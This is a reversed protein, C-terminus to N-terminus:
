EVGECGGLLGQVGIRAPVALYGCELDGTGFAEKGAVEFPYGALRVNLVASGDLEFYPHRRKLHEGFTASWRIDELLRACAIRQWDLELAKM